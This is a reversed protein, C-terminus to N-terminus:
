KLSFLQEFNWDNKHKYFCLLNIEKLSVIVPMSLLKSYPVIVELSAIRGYKINIPLELFDLASTKIKLDNIV